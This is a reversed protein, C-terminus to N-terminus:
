HQQRSFREFPLINVREQFIAVLTQIVGQDLDVSYLFVHNPCLLLLPAILEKDVEFGQLSIFDEQFHQLNHTFPQLDEDFFLFQDKEHVVHVLNITSRKSAIYKRLSEIFDQYDQELKYEDIAVEIYELLRNFYDKLRFKLFAEFSFDIHRSLFMTLSQDIMEELRYGERLLPHMHVEDETVLSHVMQIIQQQEAEDEYYFIACLFGQIFEPEKVQVIFETLAPVVYTHITHKDDKAIRIYLTNTGEIQQLSEGMFSFLLQFVYNMDSAKEFTIHM